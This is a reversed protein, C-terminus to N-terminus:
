QSRQDPNIDYFMQDVLNSAAVAYTNEQGFKTEEGTDPDVSVAQYRYLGYKNIKYIKSAGLLRPKTSEATLAQVPKSKAM